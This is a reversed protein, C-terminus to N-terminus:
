CAIRGDLLAACIGNTKQVFIEESAAFRQWRRAVSCHLNSMMRCAQPSFCNWQLGDGTARGLVGCGRACGVHGAGTSDCLGMWGADVHKRVPSRTPKLPSLTTTPLHPWRPVWSSGRSSPLILHRDALLRPPLDPPFLPSDNVHLGTGSLWDALYWAGALYWTGRRAAAGPLGVRQPVQHATGEGVAGQSDRRHSASSRMHTTDCVHAAAPFATSHPWSSTSAIHTLPLPAPPPQTHTLPLPPTFDPGPPPLIFPSKAYLLLSTRLLCTVGCVRLRVRSAEAFSPSLLLQMCVPPSM